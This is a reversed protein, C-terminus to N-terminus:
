YGFGNGASILYYLYHAGKGMLYASTAIIGVNAGGSVRLGYYAFVCYGMMNVRGSGVIALAVFLPAFALIVEPRNPSYYLSAALFFLMVLSDFFLNNTNIASYISVKTSIHSGITYGVLYGGVAICSVAAFVWVWQSFFLRKGLAGRGLGSVASVFYAILLQVHSLVATAAFALRWPLRTWYLASLLLFIFAFKLRETTFYLVLIYFNTFCFLTAIWARVGWKLLLRLLINALLANSASMVVNKDLGSNASIWVVIFHVFEASDIHRRYEDYADFIALGVVSDYADTYHMQDGDYHMPGIMLSLLFVLATVSLVLLMRPM